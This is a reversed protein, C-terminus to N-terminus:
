KAPVGLKALVNELLKEQELIQERYTPARTRHEEVRRSKLTTQLLEVLCGREEGTLTIQCEQM